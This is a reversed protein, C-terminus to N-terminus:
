NILNYRLEDYPMFSFKYDTYLSKERELNLRYEINSKDDDSLYDPQAEVWSILMEETVSNVDIFSEPAPQPLDLQKKYIKMYGDDSTALVTYWVTQVVNTLGDESKIVRGKDIKTSYITAM